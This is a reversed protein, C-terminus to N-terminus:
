DPCWWCRARSPWKALWWGEALGASACALCPGPLLIDDGVPASDPAMNPGCLIEHAWQDQKQSFDPIGSPAYNPFPAKFFRKALDYEAYDLNNGCGAVTRGDVTGIDCGPFFPDPGGDRDFTEAERRKGDIEFYDIFANRDLDDGPGQVVDNIFTFRLIATSFPIVFTKDTWTNDDASWSFVNFAVQSGQDDWGNMRIDVPGPKDNRANVRLLDARAVSQIAVLLVALALLIRVWLPAAGWRGRSDVAPEIM